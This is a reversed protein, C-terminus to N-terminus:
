GPQHSLPDTCGPQMSVPDDTTLKFCQLCLGGKPRVMVQSLAHHLLLLAMGLKLGLAVDYTQNALGFIQSHNMKTVVHESMLRFADQQGLYYAVIILKWSKELNAPENNMWITGAIAFRPAMDYKDVVISVNQIQDPDLYLMEPDSGHLTAMGDDEPLKIEVPTKGSEHLKIGESFKLNLMADFVPSALTLFHSSVRIRRKEAGVVLVVDGNPFIAEDPINMETASSM